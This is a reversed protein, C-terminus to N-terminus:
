GPETSLAIRSSWNDCRPRRRRGASRAATNGKLQYPSGADAAAPGAGDAGSM